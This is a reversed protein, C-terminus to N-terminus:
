RSRARGGGIDLAEVDLKARLGRGPVALIEGGDKQIAIGPRVPAELAKGLEQAIAELRRGGDRQQIAAFHHADDVDAAERRGGVLRAFGCEQAAQAQRQAGQQGVGGGAHLQFGLDFRERAFQGVAFQEVAGFSQKLGAVLPGLFLGVEVQAAGAPLAARRHAVDGALDDIQGPLMWHRALSEQQRHGLRQQRCGSAASVVRGLSSITAACGSSSYAKAAVM